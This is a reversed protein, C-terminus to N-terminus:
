IVSYLNFSTPPWVPLLVPRRVWFKFTILHIDRGDDTVSANIFINLRNLLSM